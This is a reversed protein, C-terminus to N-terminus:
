APSSTEHWPSPTNVAPIDSVPDVEAGEPELWNFESIFKKVAPTLLIRILEEPVTLYAFWIALVPFSPAWNTGSETPLSTSFM